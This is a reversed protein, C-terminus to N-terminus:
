KKIVLSRTAILDVITSSDMTETEIDSPDSDSSYRKIKFSDLGNRNEDAQGVVEIRENTASNQYTEGTEFGVVPVDKPWDWTFRRAYQGFRWVQKEVETPKKIEGMTQERLTRDWYDIVCSKLDVKLDDETLKEEIPYGIEITVIAHHDLNTLCHPCEMEFASIPMHDEVTLHAIETACNPCWLFVVGNDPSSLESIVTLDEFLKQESRADGPESKGDATEVRKGAFQALERDKLLSKIVSDNSSHAEKERIREVQKKTWERIRITPM